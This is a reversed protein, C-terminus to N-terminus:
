WAKIHFIRVNGNSFPAVEGFIIEQWKGVSYVRNPIITGHTTVIEDVAKAFDDLVLQSRLGKHSQFWPQVTAGNKTVLEGLHETANFQVHFRQGNQATLTFTNPVTTNPINPATGTIRNWVQASSEKVTSPLESTVRYSAQPRIAIINGLFQFGSEILAMEIFPKVAKIVNRVISSVTNYVCHSYWDYALEYVRYLEQDTFENTHQLHPLLRGLYESAEGYDTKRRSLYQRINEVQNLAELRNSGLETASKKRHVVRMNRILDDLEEQLFHGERLGGYLTKITEEGDTYESLFDRIENALAGNNALLLYEAEDENLELQPVLQGYVLQYRPMFQRLPINIRGSALLAAYAALGQREINSVGGGNTLYAAISAIVEPRNQHLWALHDPTIVIGGIVSALANCGALEEATYTIGTANEGDAAQGVQSCRSLIPTLYPNNFFTPLYGVTGTGGGGVGHEHGGFWRPGPTGPFNFGTIGGTTSEPGCDSGPEVSTVAGVFYQGDPCIARFDVEASRLAVIPQCIGVSTFWMTCRFDIEPEAVFGPESLEPKSFVWNAIGNDMEGFLLKDLWLFNIAHFAQAKKGAVSQENVNLWSRLVEKKVLAFQWNATSNFAVLYAEVSTSNLKAFPIVAARHGATKEILVMSRSWIPYGIDQVLASVFDHQSNDLMVKDAVTNIFAEDANDRFDILGGSIINLNNRSAFSFDFFDVEQASLKRRVEELEINLDEPELAVEEKRCGVFFIMLIAITFLIRNKM